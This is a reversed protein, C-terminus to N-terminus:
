LIQVFWGKSNSNLSAINEARDLMRSVLTEHKPPLAIAGHYVFAFLLTFFFDREPPQINVACVIEPDFALCDFQYPNDLGLLTDTFEFAEEVRGVAFLAQFRNLVFFVFCVDKAGNCDFTSGHRFVGSGAVV